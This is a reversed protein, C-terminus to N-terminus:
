PDVVVRGFDSRQRCVLGDRITVAHDLAPHFGAPPLAQFDHSFSRLLHPTARVRRGTRRRPLTASSHCGKLRQAQRADRSSSQAPVSGALASVGYTTLCSKFTQCLEPVAVHRRESALQQISVHDLFALCNCVVHPVRNCAARLNNIRFPSIDSHNFSCAQFVFRAVSVSRCRFM